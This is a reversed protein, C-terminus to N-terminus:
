EYATSVGLGFTNFGMRQVTGSNLIPMLEDFPSGGNGDSQGTTSWHCHIVWEDQGGPYGNLFYRTSPHAKRLKEITITLAESLANSLGPMAQIHIATIAEYHM